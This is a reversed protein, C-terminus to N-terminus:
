NQNLIAEAWEAVLERFWAQYLRDPKETVKEEVWKRFDTDIAMAREVAKPM